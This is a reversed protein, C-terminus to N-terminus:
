FVFHKYFMVNKIKEVLHRTKKKLVNFYDLYIVLAFLVIYIYIYINAHKCSCCICFTAGLTCVLLDIISM